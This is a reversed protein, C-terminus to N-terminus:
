KGGGLVFNQVNVTKPHSCNQLEEHVKKLMERLQLAPIQGPASSTAATGFTVFSGFEEGRIRTIQGMEGMSIGIIRVEKFRLHARRVAEMLREADDRSQPMVALKLIPAGSAYLKDFRQDLVPLPDTKEFDHSSAIVEMGLSSLKRILDKKQEPAELAEVDVMKVAGAKATALLRKEYEECSYDALGGEARTRITFLLPILGALRGLELSAKVLGEPTQDKYYDARWEIIDAGAQLAEQMEALLEQLDPATLPLCIRPTEWQEISSM